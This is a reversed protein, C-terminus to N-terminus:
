HRCSGRANEADRGELHATAEAALLRQGPEGPSREGLEDVAGAVARM